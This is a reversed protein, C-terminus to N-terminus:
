NNGEQQAFKMLLDFGLGTEKALCQVSSQRLMYRRNLVTDVIVDRMGRDEDITSNYAVRAGQRFSDTNYFITADFAFKQLALAKLDHIRYREGLAYVNAHLVFTPM